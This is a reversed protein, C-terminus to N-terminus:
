TSKCTSIRTRWRTRRSTSPPRSSTSPARSNRAPRCAPSSSVAPRPTPPLARRPVRPKRGAPALLAAAFAAPMMTPTMTSVERDNDGRSLAPPHLSADEGACRRPGLFPAQAGGTYAVGCHRVAADSLFDHTSRLLDFAQENKGILNPWTFLGFWSVSYNKASSMMWGTLPMAFLLVYFAVHTARAAWREFPRM